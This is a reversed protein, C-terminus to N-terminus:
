YKIRSPPQNFNCRHSFYCRHNSEVFTSYYKLKLLRLIENALIQLFPLFLILNAFILYIFKSLALLNNFISYKKILGYLINAGDFSNTSMQSRLFWQIRIIRSSSCYILVGLSIQIRRTFIFHVLLSYTYNAYHTVGNGTQVQLHQM